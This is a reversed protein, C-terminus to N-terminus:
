PLLKYYAIMNRILKVSYYEEKNDVFMQLDKDSYYLEDFYRFYNRYTASNAVDNDIVGARQFLQLHLGHHPRYCISEPNSNEILRVGKCLDPQYSPLGIESRKILEYLISEDNIVCPNWINSKWKYTKDIEDCLFEIENSVKPIYDKPKFFHLGSLQKWEKKGEVVNRIAAYVGFSISNRIFCKLNRNKRITRVINSYPLGIYDCHRQHAEFMNMEEKCLFIDIDGIYVTDYVMLSEDLITWRIARRVYNNRLAGRSINTKKIDIIRFEVGGTYKSRVDITEKYENPLEEDSYIIFHTGPYLKNFSYLYMPVFSYYKEGGFVYGIVCNKM